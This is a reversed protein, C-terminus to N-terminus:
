MAAASIARWSDVMGRISALANGELRNNVYIYASERGSSEVTRRMLSAAAARAEEYVEKLEDYPGFQDLAQQYTRGPRLLFRAASFAPNTRSGPLALQEGVDPMGTWSNYVHATRRRALMEFYDPHLFQRNRIEVGYRWEAPLAALFQELVAMFDRGREFDTPYFRSFEFILVGVKSRFPRLPELFATQFLEANLFNPNLQGARAAFRPLNSFRKVTIEDTVKFSFLFDDPVQGALADLYRADPFKYYAADVCVTKFVEAYEILCDRQFRKEALKGQWQYRESSYLQGCWGGYKWSSTGIFVGRGALWQLAERMQERDFTSM